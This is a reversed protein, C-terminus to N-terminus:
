LDDDFYRWIDYDITYTSEEELEHVRRELDELRRVVRELIIVIKDTM